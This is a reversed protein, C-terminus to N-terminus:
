FPQSLKTAPCVGGSGLGRQERRDSGASQANSGIWVYCRCFEPCRGPFSVDYECFSAILLVFGVAGLLLFLAPRVDGVEADRFSLVAASWGINVNPNDADIRAAISAMESSAGGVTVGPQLRGIVGLYHGGRMAAQDPPWALPTWMQVESPYAFGRPMVGVVLWAQGDLRITRGVIRPDAGFRNRWLVDSLVAAHDQGATEEEATFTRGLAPAIGLITFFEGTVSEGQLQEAPGEGSLALGVRVTAAIATFSRAMRQWDLFDAPSVLSADGRALSNVRVLRGPEPFPFPRLLASDVVSFIATNAGIGLALTLVAVLTFGPSKALTRLAYRLDQTLAGM